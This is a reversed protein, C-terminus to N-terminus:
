FLREEMNLSHTFPVEIFIGRAINPAYVVNFTQETYWTVEGGHRGNIRLQMSDGASIVWAQGKIARLYVDRPRPPMGHIRELWKFGVRLKGSMLELHFGDVDAPLPPLV